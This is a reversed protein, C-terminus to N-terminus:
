VTGRYLFRSVPAAPEMAMEARVFRCGGTSRKAIVRQFADRNGSQSRRIVEDLGAGYARCFTAGTRLPQTHLAFADRAGYTRWL